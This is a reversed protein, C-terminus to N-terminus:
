WTVKVTVLRLWASAIRNSHSAPVGKWKEGWTLAPLEAKRVAWISKQSSGTVKWRGTSSKLALLHLGASGFVFSLQPEKHYSTTDERQM